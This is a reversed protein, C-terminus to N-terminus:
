ISCKKRQYVVCCFLILCNVFYVASTSIALGYLNFPKILLFDLGFNLLLSLLSVWAMLHNKNISTLFKVLVISCIYFPVYLLFIKQVNSVIMTDSHLFKGRQFCYFIIQDSFLFVVASLLVTAFFTIKLIKFLDDYAKLLNNNVEKAFRPLLVNGLAMVLVGAVFSPIKVGYNIATISGVLLQAAFFQDVFSNMGILFGSSAKAPLQRIMLRLNSNLRPYKFQIEKFYIASLLLFLFELFSGMLMGIALVSVGLQDNFFIICAVVSFTTLIPYITTYLFKGGVILLSSLLSSYGWFFLAPLIWYFQVLILNYYSAAHGPYLYPLFTDTSLICIICFVIAICTVIIFSVSQFIGKQKSSALEAIYNPIFINSLSDVFVNNIFSPILVAIYFTDLLASLGFTHAVLSEKLFGSGKVFINVGSVLLINIVTTNTLMGKLLLKIKRSREGPKTRVEEVFDVNGKQM